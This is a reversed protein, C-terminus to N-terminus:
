AQKSCPHPRARYTAVGVDLGPKDVGYIKFPWIAYDAHNEHNHERIGHWVGAVGM